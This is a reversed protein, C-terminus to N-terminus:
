GHHVSARSRYIIPARGIYRIPITWAHVLKTFPWIIALVMALVIHLQFSIPAAAMLAPEPRLLFLGRFWPAITLRYDFNAFLAPSLLTNFVGLGMVLLLLVSVLWDSSDSTSRVLPNSVRRYLLLVLGAFSVIGAIGGILLASMRYQAETIGVAQTTGEPILLGGVHGLFVFILGYHFMLSGWKLQKKELLETSESSWASSDFMYRYANGVVFVLLTIYPLVVWLLDSVMPDGM